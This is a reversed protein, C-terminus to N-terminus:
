LREVDLYNTATTVPVQPQDEKAEEESLNISKHDSEQEREENAENAENIQENIVDLSEISPRHSRNSQFSAPRRRSVTPDMMNVLGLDFNSSSM